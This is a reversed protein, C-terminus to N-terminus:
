SRKRQIKGRVSFITPSKGPWLSGAVSLATLNTAVAPEKEFKAFPPSLLTSFEM